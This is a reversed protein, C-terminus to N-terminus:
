CCISSNREELVDQTLTERKYYYYYYFFFLKNWNKGALEGGGGWIGSTFLATARAQLLFTVTVKIWSLLGPWKNKWKM